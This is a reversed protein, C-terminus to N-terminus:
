FVVGKKSGKLKPLVVLMSTGASVGLVIAAIWSITLKLTCHDLILLKSDFLYVILASSIAFIVGAKQDAFTIYNNIYGHEFQAFDYHAQKFPMSNEVPNIPNKAAQTDATDQEALYSVESVDPMNAIADQGISADVANPNDTQNKNDSM